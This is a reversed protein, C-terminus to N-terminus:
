WWGKIVGIFYWTDVLLMWNVWYLIRNRKKLVGYDAIWTDTVVLQREILAKRESLCLVLDEVTANLDKNKRYLNGYDEQADEYDTQLEDVEKTLEDIVPYVDTYFVLEGEAAQELPGFKLFGRNYRTIEHM